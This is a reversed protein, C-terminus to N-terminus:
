DHDNDGKQHAHIIIPNPVIDANTKDPDKLANRWRYNGIELRGIMCKNEGFSDLNCGQFLLVAHM